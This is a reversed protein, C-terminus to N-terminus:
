RCARCRPCAHPASARGADYPHASEREGRAHRARATRAGGDGRERARTGPCGRARVCWLLLWLTDVANNVATIESSLTDIELLQRGAGHLAEGGLAAAGAEM